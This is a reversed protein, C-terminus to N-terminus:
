RRRSHHHGWYVPISWPSWKEVPPAPPEGAAIRAAEQEAKWVAEEARIEEVM